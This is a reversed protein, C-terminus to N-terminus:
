IKSIWQINPKNEEFLCAEKSTLKINSNAKALPTISNWDLMIYHLLDM